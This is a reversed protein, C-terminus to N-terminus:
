ELEQLIGTDTSVVHSAHVSEKYAVVLRLQGELEERQRERESTETTLQERLQCM